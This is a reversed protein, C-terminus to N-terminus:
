EYRLAVMPDVRIARRSPLYTAVLEIALFLGSVGAFSIPDVMPLGYMVGHLLASAGVAGCAGVALGAVVPSASSRLMLALISGKGAGLAMRIGVERTRLVVVYSVTGYIGMDALLLGLLGVTSAIFAATASAVFPQTERLMKELTATAVELNSDVAEVATGLTGTLAAPDGSARVLIPYDAIRGEPLPIYIQKSDSLDM